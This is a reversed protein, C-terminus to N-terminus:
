RRPRRPVGRPPEHRSTRLCRPDRHARGYQHGEESSVCTEVKLKPCRRESPSIMRRHTFSQDADIYAACLRQSNSNITRLGSFDKLSM